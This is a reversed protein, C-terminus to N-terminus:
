HKNSFVSLKEGKRGRDRREEYKKLYVLIWAIKNIIVAVKNCVNDQLKKYANKEGCIDWMAM